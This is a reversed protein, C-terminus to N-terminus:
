DKPKYVVGQQYGTQPSAATDSAPRTSALHRLLHDSITSAPISAVPSTVSPTHVSGTSMRVSMPAGHSSSSIVSSSVMYASSSVTHTMLSAPRAPRASNSTSYTQSSGSSMTIPMSAGPPYRSMASSTYLTSSISSSGMPTLLPGQTSSTYPSHGPGATMLLSAGSTSKTIGAPSSASMRVSVRPTMLCGTPTSSSTMSFVPTTCAMNHQTSSPFTHSRKLDLPPDTSCTVACTILDKKIIVNRNNNTMPSHHRSHSSSYQQSTHNASSPTPTTLSDSSTVCDSTPTTISHNACNSKKIRQPSDIRAPQKKSSRIRALLANRKSQSMRVIGPLEGDTESLISNLGMTINQQALTVSPQLHKVREFLRGAGLMFPEATNSLIAQIPAAAKAAAEAVKALGPEEDISKMAKHWSTSKKMRDSVTQITNTRGIIGSVGGAPTYAVDSQAQGSDYLTDTVLSEFRPTQMMTGHLIRLKSVVNLADGPSKNNSSTQNTPTSQASNNSDKDSDFSSKTAYIGREQLKEALGLSCSYTSTTQVNTVTSDRASMCGVVPLFNPRVAPSTATSM